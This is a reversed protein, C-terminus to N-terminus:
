GAGSFRVAVLLRPVDIVAIDRHPRDALAGPHRMVDVLPVPGAAEIRDSVPLALPLDAGRRGAEFLGAGCELSCPPVVQAAASLRVEGLVPAM